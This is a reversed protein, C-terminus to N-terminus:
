SLQRRGSGGADPREFGLRHPSGSAEASVLTELEAVNEAGMRGSLKFSVQGNAARTIKLM